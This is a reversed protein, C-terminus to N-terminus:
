RLRRRRTLPDIAPQAIRSVGEDRADIGRTSTIPASRARRSTPRCASRRRRGLLVVGGVGAWFWGRRYFPPSSAPAPQGSHRVALLSTQRDGAAHDPSPTLPPATVSAGPPPAAPEGRPSDAGLQNRRAEALKSIEAALREAAPRHPGRPDRVTYRHFYLQAREYDGMNRYCQAINFLFAPLPEVDYAAQYDARAEDFRGQSFSAQAREFLAQGPRAGGVDSALLAIFLTVVNIMPAPDLTLAKDVTERARTARSIGSQPKRTVGHIAPAPASAAGAAADAIADTLAAPVEAVHFASVLRRLARRARSRGRSSRTHKIVLAIAGLVAIPLMAKVARNRPVGLVVRRPM